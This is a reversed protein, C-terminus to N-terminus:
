RPLRFTYSYQIRFAVTKGDNGIAPKWKFKRVANVAAEDLGYGLKRLVKIERLKGDHDIGLSLRVTGEMEMLLAQNPYPAQVEQVITPWQRVYSESVPAFPTEGTGGAVGGAYSAPNVVPKPVATPVAVLTNGVPVAVASPGQVVSDASVGVIPQPPDPSPDPPPPTNSPPPPAEAPPPPTSKARTTRIVPPPAPVEPEPPPPPPITPAVSAVEIEIPESPRTPRPIAPLVGVSLALVAHLVFSVVVGTGAWTNRIAAAM